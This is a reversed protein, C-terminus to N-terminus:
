GPAMLARTWHEVSGQKGRYLWGVCLASSKRTHNVLKRPYLKVVTICCSHIPVQKAGLIHQTPDPWNQWTELRNVTHTHTHTHTHTYTHSEPQTHLKLTGYNPTMKKKLNDEGYGRICLAAEHM